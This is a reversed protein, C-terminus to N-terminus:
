GLTIEFSQIEPDAERGAPDYKDNGTMVRTIGLYMSSISGEVRLTNGTLTVVASLPDNYWVTGPMGARKRCDEGPYLDHPKALACYCVSNVDFYVVDNWIRVFDSHNHGNVCMIVSNKKRRNAADIIGRVEEQNRVGDCREFSEHSFILCPLESEAITNELWALQEPPMYDITDPHDYFNGMTYAVYDDGDRYYNPDTIIFRYGGRDFFYYNNPMRYRKLTEEFPTRETDHNGLCHYSPIHFDNYEEIHDRVEDGGHCFDGTHIMLECGTEEARKQLRHLYSRDELYVGPWYHLDSFLLFKM